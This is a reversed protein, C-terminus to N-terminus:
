NTYTTTSSVHGTAILCQISVTNKVLQTGGKVIESQLVLDMFSEKGGITDM